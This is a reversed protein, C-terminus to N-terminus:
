LDALNDNKENLFEHDLLEEATARQKPDKDWCKDLFDLLAPEKFKAQIKKDSKYLPTENNATSFM